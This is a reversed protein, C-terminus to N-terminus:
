SEADNSLPTSLQSSSKLEPVVVSTGSKARLGISLWNALSGIVNATDHAKGPGGESADEITLTPWLPRRLSVAGIGAYGAKTGSRARYLGPRVYVTAFAGGVRGHRRLRGEVQRFDALKIRADQM